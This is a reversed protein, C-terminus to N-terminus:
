FTWRVASRPFSEERWTYACRPEVRFVPSDDPPRMGYKEEYAAALEGGLEEEAAVGDLVVVDSGSELHVAVRPDRRLNRAKLSTAGCSFWVAGDRWLAWVPSAAPSGDARTTCIWYNRAERLQEDAWSWPVLQAGSADDPVGYEAPILPRAPEPV